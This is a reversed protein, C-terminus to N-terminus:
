WQNFVAAASLICLALAVAGLGVVARLGPRGTFWRSRALLVQALPAFVVLGLAAVFSFTFFGPGANGLLSLLALALGLLQGCALFCRDRLSMDSKM